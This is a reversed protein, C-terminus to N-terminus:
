ECSNVRLSAMVNVSSLDHAFCAELAISLIGFLTSEVSLQRFYYDWVYM